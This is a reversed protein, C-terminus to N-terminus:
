RAKERLPRIELSAVELPAIEESTIALTAPAPMDVPHLIAVGVAPEHFVSSTLVAMARSESEDVLVDPLATNKEPNPHPAAMFKKSSRNVSNRGGNSKRSFGTQPQEKVANATINRPLVSNPGDISTTQQRLFTLAVIGTLVV